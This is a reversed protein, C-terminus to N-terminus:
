PVKGGELNEACGQLCKGGLQFPRLLLVTSYGFGFYCTFEEEPCRQCTGVPHVHVLVGQKRKLLLACVQEYLVENVAPKVSVQKYKCQLVARIGWASSSFKCWHM